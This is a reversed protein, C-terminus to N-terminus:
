RGMSRERKEKFVNDHARILQAVLQPDREPSEIGRKREREEVMELTSLANDTQFRIDRLQVCVERYCARHARRGPLGGVEVWAEKPKDLRPKECLFCDVDLLLVPSRKQKPKPM